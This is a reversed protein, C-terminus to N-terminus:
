IYKAPNQLAGNVEVEFHCHAGTSNGTNGVKAIQQGKGVKDGVSVLLESCHAYVTVMGNQHNIKIYNGYSYNYTATVVIGGDAAYIPNGVGCALDLGRHLRGWRAGFGSSRYGAPCPNILDGTGIYSPREKTGVYIIKTVPEKVTEKALIEKKKEIGNKCTIEATIQVKGNKGEQFVEEDGEYLEDTKVKKVEYDLDDEYVKVYKTLVTVLPKNKSVILLDGEEPEETVSPNLAHFYKNTMKFNKRISKITDGDKVEYTQSGKGSLISELAVNYNMLKGVTSTIEKINMKEAFGVSQYTIDEELYREKIDELIKEATDKSDVVAIRTDGAYIGYASAKADQMYTLKALVQDPTDTTRDVTVVRRFSFDKNIDIQVDVGYEKTLGKSAIAVVKSVDEQNKVLGLTRGNYSYEYGTAYNFVSILCIMIIVAVTSYKLATMRGDWALRGQKRIFKRLRSFQFSINDFLVEQYFDHRSVIRGMVKSLGNHRSVSVWRYFRILARKATRRFFKVDKALQDITIDIWEDSIEQLRAAARAISGNKEVSVAEATHRAFKKVADTSGYCVKEIGHAVAGFAKDTLDQLLENKEKILNIIGKRGEAM